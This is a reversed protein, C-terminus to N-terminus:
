RSSGTALLVPLALFERRDRHARRDRHVQVKRGVRGLSAPRAQKAERGLRVALELRDVAVRRGRYDPRDTSVRLAVSASERSM